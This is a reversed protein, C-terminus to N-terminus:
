GKLVSLEPLDLTALERQVRLASPDRLDEKESALNVLLVVTFLLQVVNTMANKGIVSIWIKNVMFKKKM